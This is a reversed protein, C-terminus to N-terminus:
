IVNHHYSSESTLELRNLLDNKKLNRKYPIRVLTIGREEFYRNKLEDYSAVTGNNWERWPHNPDKHQSGDAEVATNIEPLFFDVRLPHGKTGVLGEFSKETEVNTFEDKLFEGVKNHFTSKPSNFGVEENLAKISIGHKIFTKSSHGTGLCIDTTTCYENRERVFDIAKSVLTEKDVGRMHQTACSKSCYKTDIISKYGRKDTYILSFSISCNTCFRETSNEM